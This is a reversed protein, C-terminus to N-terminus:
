QWIVHFGSGQGGGGEEVVSRVEISYTAPAFGNYEVVILKRGVGIGNVLQTGSTPIPIPANPNASNPNTIIGISVQSVPVSEVMGMNYVYVYLDNQPLFSEGARYEHRRPVVWMEDATTSSGDFVSGMPTCAAFVPLLLIVTLYRAMGGGM